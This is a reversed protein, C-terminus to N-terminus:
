QARPRSMWVRVGGSRDDREAMSAVIDGNGDGDIDVIRIAYAVAENKLDEFQNLYFVGDSAQIWVELGGKKRGAVLDELGDGNLDGTAIRFYYNRRNDDVHIEEPHVKEWGEDDDPLYRIIATRAYNEKPTKFFQEMVAYVAKTGKAKPDRATDVDFHYANGFTHREDWIRWGEAGLNFYGLERWGSSNSAIALDTRGDGDLDSAVIRDGFVYRGPQKGALRWGKETNHVVWVTPGPIKKSSGMDLDLEAEFALDMRGDQNFDAVALARSTVRPDPSPIKKFRRFQFDRSGYLVYGGKFHIAMAIDLFGDGDFDAVRIDGYDYPVGPAWKPVDWVKFNGSGDGLYIWPHAPTGKRAPPLIIDVHGDANFDAMDFKGQWLGNAPLGAGKKELELEDIIPPPVVSASFDLYLGFGYEQEVENWMAKWARDEQVKLWLKHYFSDEEEPPIGKVWVTDGEERVIEMKHRFAPHPYCYKEDLRIISAKPVPRPTMWDKIIKGTESSKAAAEMKARLGPPLQPGEQASGPVVGSFVLCVVIPVLKMGRNM